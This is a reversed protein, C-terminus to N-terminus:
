RRYNRLVGITLGICVASLVACVIFVIWPWPLDHRTEPNAAAQAYSNGAASNGASAGASASGSSGSSSGLPKASDLSVTLTYSIEHPEGMATTDGIVTMPEDLSTIPIVFTSNGSKNTPLYKKDAVIMYDYNPSSWVVKVVARTDFVELEAPSEITAKGTGGELAVDVQYLGDDLTTAVADGFPDAAETVDAFAIGRFAGIALIALFAALFVVKAALAVAPTGWLGKRGPTTANSTGDRM